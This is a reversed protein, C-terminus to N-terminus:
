QWLEDYVQSLEDEGSRGYKRVFKCYGFVTLGNQAYRNERFINNVSDWLSINFLIMKDTKQRYKDFYVLSDESLKVQAIFVPNLFHEAHYCWLQKENFFYLGDNSSYQGSDILEKDLINMGEKYIFNNDDYNTYLLQYLPVNGMKEMYIKGTVSMKM